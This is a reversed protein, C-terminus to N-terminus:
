WTGTAGHPKDNWDPQASTEEMADIKKTMTNYVVQAESRLTIPKTFEFTWLDGSSGSSSLSLLICADYTGGQTYITYTGGDDEHANITSKLRLLVATRIALGDTGAAPIHMDITIGVPKHIISDAIVAANMLPRETAENIILSQNTVVFSPQNALSNCSMRVIDAIPQEKGQQGGTLKIPNRVYLDIFSSM